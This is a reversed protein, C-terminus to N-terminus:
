IMKMKEELLKKKESAEKMKSELTTPSLMGGNKPSRVPSNRKTEEEKKNPSQDSDMLTIAPEIEEHTANVDLEGRNKAEAQENQKRCEEIYLLKDIRRGLENIVICENPSPKKANKLIQSFLM